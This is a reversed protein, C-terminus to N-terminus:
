AEATPARRTPWHGPEPQERLLRDLEKEEVLAHLFVQDMRKLFFFSMGEKYEEELEEIQPRNKDPLLVTTIGARKAALMKDKIGGVPLVMGRLSIEGTMAVDSRVPRDTLLSTLATLMTVGASPGDKKIAGAPIHIHIDNKSFTDDGIGLKDANARIYSL